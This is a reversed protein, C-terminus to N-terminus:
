AAFRNREEDFRSTWLDRRFRELDDLGGDLTTEVFRLVADHFFPQDLHRRSVLNITGGGCDRCRVAVGVLRADDTPALLALQSPYGPRVDRESSCYFTWPWNGRRLQREVADSLEAAVPETRGTLFNLFVVHPPSPAIAACDLEHEDLLAPHVDPCANCAFTVRHIAPHEPGPLREITRFASLPRDVPRGTRPCHLRFTNKLADFM